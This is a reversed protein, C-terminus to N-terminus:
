APSRPATTVAVSCTLKWTASPSRQHQQPRRAAALRRQQLGDAAVQRRGFPLDTQAAARDRLGPGVAHHHELLEVLQQGPLGHTAVDFERQLRRAAGITLPACFAACAM